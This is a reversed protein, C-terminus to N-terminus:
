SRLVVTHNAAPRMATRGYGWLAVLLDVLIGIALTGEILQYPNFGLPSYGIAGPGGNAM